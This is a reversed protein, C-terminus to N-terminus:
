ALKPSFFVRSLSEGSIVADTVDTLITELDTDPAYSM